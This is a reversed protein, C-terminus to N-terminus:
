GNNDGEQNNNNEDPAVAAPNNKWGWAPEPLEEYMRELKARNAKGSSGNFNRAVDDLTQAGLEVALKAGEMSKLPDIDPMPSGSWECNLWAARLTNDYWGPASVRGAAIEESLWMEYIPDNSDSNQEEREICANRYILILTARSASYNNSFLKRVVEISWGASACISTFFSKEFADYQASPSTDQLNKWKDGRRLNGVLTSGPQRITAEPMLDWNVLPDESSTATPAPTTTQPPGAVRGIVPNSPDKIDNEIAAIFSSQNIAKQIHSIKFNTLQSFEQILHSMRPYGRGQGAYEPNFGHLM